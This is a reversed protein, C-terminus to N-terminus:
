PKVSKRAALVPLNKTVKEESLSDEDQDDDSDDV